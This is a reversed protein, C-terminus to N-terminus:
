FRITGPKLISDPAVKIGRRLWNGEGVILRDGLVAFDDVHAQKGVEVGRGLVSNRVVAGPELRCDSFCIAGELRAGDGIHCRDGLSTPGVIVANAEITCNKGMVVPGYLLAGQDVTTGEGVWVRSKLETGAFDFPLKGELLDRHARIYKEPTGIDLWYSSAPFGYVKMDEGLLHPFLGREFSYNEGLPAHALIEPELVYTGANILDTTAEDWSPKEVFSSVRGDSELPVLGYSTPDEVATLAITAVAEKRRHYDVLNTLNIDTLIDGNLVLFTEDLRDAVNKVAGCTGLPQDETVVEVSMGIERSETLFETFVEPLYGTSLIVENVGYRRLHALVIAIFPRNLLPLMPKPITTTLPRLRTGLGGVLIVAKM